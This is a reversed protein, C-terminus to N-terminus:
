FPAHGIYRRRALLDRDEGYCQAHGGTPRVRRSVALSGGALLRQRRCPAIMAGALAMAQARSGGVAASTRPALPLARTPGSTRRIGTFIVFIFSARVEDHRAASHRYPCDAFACYSLWKFPHRRVPGTSRHCKLRSNRTSHILGIQYALTM